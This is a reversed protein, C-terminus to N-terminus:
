KCHVGVAPSSKLSRTGMKDTSPSGRSVPSIQTHCPRPLTAQVVVDIRASGALGFCCLELM